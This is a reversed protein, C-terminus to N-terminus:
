VASSAKAAECLIRRYLEYESPPVLLRHDLLELMKRELGNLEELKLGGVKAYFTNTYFVDDQFKAALMMSTILLRHCSLPSVLINPHRKVLRDIYVLGLVYCEISCSFFKRIRDIYARIGMGPAHVCHFITLAETEKALAAMREIAIALGAVVHEDCGEDFISQPTTDAQPIVEREHLPVEHKQPPAEHEQVKGKSLAAPMPTGPTSGIEQEISCDAASQPVMSCPTACRGQRCSRKTSRRGSPLRGRRGRCGSAQSQQQQQMQQEEVIAAEHQVFTSSLSSDMTM